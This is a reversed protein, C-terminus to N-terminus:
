YNTQRSIAGENHHTNNRPPAGRILFNVIHEAYNM